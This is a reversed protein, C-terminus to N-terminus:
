VGSKRSHLVLKILETRFALPTANAESQNRLRLKHKIGKVKASPGGVHHTGEPRDWNLEFPPSMGVYYLWTAKNARHGYASQWVECVWGPQKACKAWGTEVFGNPEFREPRRLNYKRWARTLAPHELVGGWKNVADLAFEFCGGDNGPKYRDTKHIAYNVFALSGWLQCPPHAIVPYSGKYNLANRHIDWPDIFSVNQYCGESEVFLAAIKIESHKKTRM